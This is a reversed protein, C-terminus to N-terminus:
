PRDFGTPDVSGNGEAHPAVGRDLRADIYTGKSATANRCAAYLFPDVKELDSVTVGTAVVVGRADKVEVRDGTLFTVKYDRTQLAFTASRPPADAASKPSLGPDEVPTACAAATAAAAFLVVAIPARMRVLIGREHPSKWGRFADARGYPHATREPSNREPGRGIWM